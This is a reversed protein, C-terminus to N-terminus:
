HGKMMAALEMFQSRTLLVVDTGEGQINEQEIRIYDESRGDPICHTVWTHVPTSDEDLCPVTFEELLNSQGSSM